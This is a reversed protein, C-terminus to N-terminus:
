HEGAPEELGVDKCSLGRPYKGALTRYLVYLDWEQSVYDKILPRNSGLCRARAAEILELKTHDVRLKTVSSQTAFAELGPVWGRGGLELVLLLVLLFFVTFGSVLRKPGFSMLWSGFRKYMSNGHSFDPSEEAYDRLRGEFPTDIRQQNRQQYSHKREEREKRTADIEDQTLLPEFPGTWGTKKPM